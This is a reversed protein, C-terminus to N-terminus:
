WNSRTIKIAASEALGLGQPKKVEVTVQEVLRHGLAIDAIGDALSEILRYRSDTVHEVIKDTLKAYDITDQLDDSKCSTSLDAELILDVIVEQDHNREFDETGIITPIRLGHIKLQDPPSNM